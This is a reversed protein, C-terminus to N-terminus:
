GSLLLDLGVSPPKTSGSKNLAAPAPRAARPLVGGAVILLLAAAIALVAAVLFAGQWGWVAASALVVTPAVGFGLCGTLNHFSFAKGVRKAAFAAALLMPHSHSVFHAAGILAIVRADHTWGSAATPVPESTSSM